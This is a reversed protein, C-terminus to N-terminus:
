PTCTASVMRVTRVNLKPSASASPRAAPDAGTASPAGMSKEITGSVEVTHGVHESLKAGSPNGSLTLSAAPVPPAAPAVAGSTGVAKDEKWKLDSLTFADATQGAKL